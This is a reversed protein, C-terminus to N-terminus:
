LFLNIKIVVKLHRHKKHKYYKALRFEYRHMKELGFCVSGPILTIPGNGSAELPICYTSVFFDSIEKRM